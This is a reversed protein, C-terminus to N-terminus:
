TVETGCLKTESRVEFGGARLKALRAADLAAPIGLQMAAATLSAHEEGEEETLRQKRLSHCCPLVAVAAGVGLAAHLIDDTLPGCAHIATLLMAPSAEVAEISGEIYHLDANLGPFRKSIAEGLSDASAPMRVDVCVATRPRGGQRALLLLMWALLGHGAALDAVRTATPFAADIRIAVEWAEYLEKRPLVGATCVARGVEALLPPHLADDFVYEHSPRLKSRSGLIGASLGAATALRTTSQVLRPAFCRRTAPSM